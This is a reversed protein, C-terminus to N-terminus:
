PHQDCSAEQITGYQGEAGLCSLSMHCSVTLQQNPQETRPEGLAQYLKVLVKGLHQSVQHHKSAFCPEMMLILEAGCERVMKHPQFEVLTHMIDLGTLLTPPPDLNHHANNQLLKNIYNVKVAANPWIHLAKSLVAKTHTLLAQLGLQANLSVEAVSSQQPFPLLTLHCTAIDSHWAPSPPLYM